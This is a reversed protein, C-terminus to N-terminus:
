FNSMLIEINETSYEIQKSWRKVNEIRDSFEFCGSKYYTYADCMILFMTSIVAFKTWYNFDKDYEAKPLHRYLTYMFFKSYDESFFDIKEFELFDTSERLNKLYSVWEDNIPETESFSRIIKASVICDFDVASYEDPCLSLILNMKEVIDLNCSNVIDSLQKHLESIENNKSDEFIFELRYDNDFLQECVKECCLGLGSETVDDTLNYFRPHERCIDCLSEEGLNYYIECLCNKDLFPCKDGDSLKFCTSEGDFVISNRLRDGFNGSVSNYLALSDDDVDIEWGICCSDLCKEAKCEFNDYFSPKIFM